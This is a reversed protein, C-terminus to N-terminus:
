KIKYYIQGESRGTERYNKNIYEVLGPVAEKIYVDSFVFWKPKNVDMEKFFEKVMTEKYPSDFVYNYSTAFRIGPIFGGFLYSGPDYGYITLTEGPLAGLEKLKLSVPSYYVFPETPNQDRISVLHLNKKEIRMGILFVFVLLAWKWNHIEHFHNGVQVGAWMYIPVLALLMYHDFSNGTKHVCYISIPIVLWLLLNFKGEDDFPNMRRFFIFPYTIAATLVPLYLWATADKNYFSPMGKIRSWWTGDSGDIPGSSYALNLFVAERFYLEVTGRWTLYVLFLTAPLAAGALLILREGTFVKKSGQNLSLLCALGLVAIIPLVQLKCFPSLGLFTGSLFLSIPSQAEKRISFWLLYGFVIIPYCLTETNYHFFDPESNALAWFFTPILTLAFAKETGLVKKFAFFSLWIGPMLYVFSAFLRLSAPNLGLGIYYLITILYPGLFGSTAFCVNEHPHPFQTLRAADVLWETEDWLSASALSNPLRMVVMLIGALGLLFLAVKPKQNLRGAPLSFIPVVFLALCFYAVIQWITVSTAKNAFVWESLLNFVPGPYRYPDMGFIM